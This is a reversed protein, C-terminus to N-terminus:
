FDHMAQLARTMGDSTPKIVEHPPWRMMATKMPFRSFVEAHAAIFIGQFPAFCRQTRGVFVARRYRKASRWRVQM